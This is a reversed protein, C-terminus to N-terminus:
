RLVKRYVRLFNLGMIKKLDAESYGKEHLRLIVAKWRAPSDLIGDAKRNRVHSGDLYGDTSLGVHDIGIKKIVYDVHAVYDDVTKKRQLARPTRGDLQQSANYLYPPYAMIGVVGDTSKIAQLAKDSINRSYRARYRGFRDRIERAATHNATIPTGQKKAIAAVDFVTQSNCHSLDVVMKLRILEAVAKKGLPTLGIKQDSGGGLKEGPGQNKDKSGYAIQFIRLGKAHWRKLNKIDGKLPFHGQSYFLIGYEKNKLALDFDKASLIARVGRFRGRKISAVQGDLSRESSLTIGGFNIGTRKKVNRFDPQGLGSPSFYNVNGDIVVSEAFLRDIDFPKKKQKASQPRTKQAPLNQSNTVGVLGSLFIALVLVSFQVTKTM